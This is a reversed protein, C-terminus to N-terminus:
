SGYRRLLRELVSIFRMSVWDLLRSREDRASMRPKVSMSIMTTTTMMPSKADMMTGCTMSRTSSARTALAFCSMWPSSVASVM